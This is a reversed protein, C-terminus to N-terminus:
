VYVEKRKAANEEAQLEQKTLAKNFEKVKEPEALARIKNSAATIKLTCGLSSHMMIYCVADDAFFQAKKRATFKFVRMRKVM